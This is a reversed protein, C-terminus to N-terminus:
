RLSILVTADASFKGYHETGGPLTILRARYAFASTVPRSSTNFAVPTGQADDIQIGINELQTPLTHSDVLNGRFSFQINVKSYDDPNLCVVPIKFAASPLGGGDQKLSFTPFTVKIRHATVGCLSTNILLAPPNIRLLPHMKGYINLSPLSFQGGHLDGIKYIRLFINEGPLWPSLRSVCRNSGKDCLSFGIGPVNTKFISKSTDWMGEGTEVSLVTESLASSALSSLPLTKLLTGNQLGAINQLTIAPMKQLLTAAPTTFSVFLALLAGNKIPM